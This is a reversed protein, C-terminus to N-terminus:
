LFEAFLKSKNEHSQPILPGPIVIKDNLTPTTPFHDARVFYQPTRSAPPRTGLGAISFPGTDNCKRSAGPKRRILQLRPKELLVAM